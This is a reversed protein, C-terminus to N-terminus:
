RYKAGLSSNAMRMQGARTNTRPQRLVARLPSSSNAASKGTRDATALVLFHRSGIRGLGLKLASYGCCFRLLVAMYSSGDLTPGAFVRIM